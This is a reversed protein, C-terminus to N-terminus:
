RPQGVAVVTVRETLSGVALTVNQTVTKSVGVEVITRFTTFGPVEVKLSYQGPTLAALDYKGTEGSTTTQIETEAITNGTITRSSVSVRVGSIVAGSADSITGSLSGDARGQVVAAKSAAKRIPPKAAPEAAKVTSVVAPVAVIESLVDVPETRQQAGIVALPTMVLVAVLASTLVALRGAPKRNLSTNLMAIF